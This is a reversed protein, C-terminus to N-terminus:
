PVHYNFSFDLAEDVYAESTANTLPYDVVPHLGNVAEAVDGSFMIYGGAARETDVGPDDELFRFMYAAANLYVLRDLIIFTEYPDDPANTRRFIGFPEGNYYVALLLPVRVSRRPDNVRKVLDEERYKIQILTNKDRINQQTLANPSAFLLISPFLIDVRGILGVIDTDVISNTNLDTLYDTTTGM